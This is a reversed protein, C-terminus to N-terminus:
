GRTIRVRTVGEGALLQNVNAGIVAPAQSGRGWHITTRHGLGPPLYVANPWLGEYLRVVARVRGTPSEVWVLDGDRIGLPRAARPNMEVWTRWKMNSQLGYCEQLTPLIGTWPRPHTILGQTVLLFPYRNADGSEVPVRFHPLCATDVAAMDTEGAMVAYLERSYFDFRGDRPAHLRDRGVVQSWARSGPQAHFYVLESWVGNERVKDWDTDIASLRYECLARYNPFPLAQAVNGGLAKALALLVDGPDRTDHVPAVVPQRLSVGAYGTGEIFDDGWTELFTSAPLILDAHAATEDPVSAFSVVFPVKLLAEAMKGGAPREYVPNTNLLFLLNVPYPDASGLRAALAEASLAAFPDATVEDLRPQALSATAPLPADPWPALTPFRQVLVGGATDISGVLANLAHVALAEHLPLGDPEVPLVAVAPRNTAFEGALRAIDAAPVGTLFEVRELTYKELVWRKFGMHKVGQADEFDEFGFTYDRVFDADYLGSNIIVNAMGLALAGYTGPRIPVWEDAKVGTLSLRPHVAVFKGRRPRGRRMFAMAALAGIVHRSTELYNGGFAIVYNANNVDYVPYGNIGQSLFMALRAAREGDSELHIANPSGYAAMFRNLMARLSGRTDGHLFAVTHAQGAAQLAALKGAVLALAEDWSLERWTAAPDSKSGNRIRPRQIREPSYLMELAAQGRLCCVGQNVPHISSGEVKVARGNVVRVELGCGSPCLACTTRVRKEALSAAAVAGQQGRLMANSELLAQTGAAAAVTAATLGTLKIFSRRSLPSM